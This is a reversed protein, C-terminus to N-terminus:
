GPRWIRGSMRGRFIQEFCRGLKWGSNGWRSIKRGLGAFCSRFPNESVRLRLLVREPADGRALFDCWLSWSVIM